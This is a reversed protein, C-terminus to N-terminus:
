PRTSRALIRSGLSQELAGRSVCSLTINQDVAGPRYDGQVTTTIQIRSEDVTVGYSVRTSTRNDKLYDLGMTTGCDADLPALRVDKLATSIVGAAEDGYTIQYGAAVLETKAAVLVASKSSGHVASFSQAISEPARYTAACASVASAAIAIAIKKKM